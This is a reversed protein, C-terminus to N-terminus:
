SKEGAFDIMYNWGGCKLQGQILAFASKKALNYYYEDQTIEYADLFLHGMEVTGPGQVWVMSPYAEMEGWRRSLDKKYVWVYGGNVSLNKDFYEAAKKIVDRIQNKIDYETKAFLNVTIITNIIVAFIFKLLFSFYKKM